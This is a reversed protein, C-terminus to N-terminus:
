FDWEAWFVTEQSEREDNFDGGLLEDGGMRRFSSRTM